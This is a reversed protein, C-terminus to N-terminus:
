PGVHLRISANEFSVGSTQGAMVGFDGRYAEPPFARNLELTVLDELLVGAFRAETLRGERVTLSLQESLGIHGRGIKVKQAYTGIARPPNMTAFPNLNLHTRLVILPFEERDKDTNKMVRIIQGVRGAGSPDDHLGWFVGAQGDWAATQRLDLQLTYSTRQTTGLQYLGMDLVAIHLQKSSPEFFKGEETGVLTLPSVELLEYSRGAKIEAEELEQFAQSVPAVLFQPSVIDGPDGDPRSWLAAAVGAVVLFLLTFAGVVVPMTLPRQPVPSAPQALPTASAFASEKWALLEKALDSAASYRDQPRRELCRLCIRELEIPIADNITRLPRPEKDLIQAVYDEPEIPLYPLRRTLLQYLIVGLGYIDTRADVLHSEGRAQEPSMYYVTGLRGASETLLEWEDVALGLDSVYPRGQQDLLVNAPKIDRHVLGTLHIQHLSTAIDAILQAIEVLSMQWQVMREALTGGPMLESVIYFEGQETVIDYIPVVGPIKLKAVKRAESLLAASREDSKSGSYRSVKVAVDRDLLEDHAKWVTGFGGSGLCQLVKYRGFNSPASHEGELTSQNTHTSGQLPKISIPRQGLSVDTTDLDSGRKAPAPLSGSSDALPKPSQANAM